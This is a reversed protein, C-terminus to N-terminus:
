SQNESSLWSRVIDRAGAIRLGEKEAKYILAVAEGTQGSEALAKMRRELAENLMQLHAPETMGTKQLSKLRKLAKEPRDKRLWELWKALKKIKKKEESTTHAEAALAESQTHPTSLAKARVAKQPPKEDPSTHRQEPSGAEKHTGAGKKLRLAEVRSNGQRALDQLVDDTSELYIRLSFLVQQKLLKMLMAANHPTYREKLVSAVLAPKYTRAKRFIEFLRDSHQSRKPLISRFKQHFSAEAQTLGSVLRYAEPIRNSEATRAM